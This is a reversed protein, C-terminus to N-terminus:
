DEKKFIETLEIDSHSCIDAMPIAFYKHMMICGIGGDSFFNPHLLKFFDDMDYRHLFIFVDDNDWKYEIGNENIFKYLEIAKM